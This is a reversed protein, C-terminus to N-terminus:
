LIYRRKYLEIHLINSVETSISNKNLECFMEFDLRLKHIKHHNLQRKFRDLTLREEINKKTNEDKLMHVPLGLDLLILLANIEVFSREGNELKSVQSRQVNILRGFESISLGLEERFEKVLFGFDIRRDGTM